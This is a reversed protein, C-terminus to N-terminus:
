SRDKSPVCLGMSYISGNELAPYAMAYAEEFKRACIYALVVCFAGRQLLVRSYLKQTVGGRIAIERRFRGVDCGSLRVVM